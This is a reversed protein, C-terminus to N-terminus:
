ISAQKKLDIKLNEVCFRDDVGGYYTVCLGATHSGMRMSERRDAGSVLGYILGSLFLDGAGTTDVTRGYSVAPQHHIADDIMTMSGKDGMTIVTGKAYKNLIRLADEVTDTNALGMAENENPTFYTAYSIIPIVKEDLGRDPNWGTDVSLTKAHKKCLDVIPAHLCYGLYTHVHDASSIMRELRDMTEVDNSLFHNDVDSFSAFCRDKGTSMVASVDIKGGEEIILTDEIVGARILENRILRGFEDDCMSTYMGVPVGLKALGFATNAGGGAKVAFEKCYEEEGLVPIRDLGGFIIDCCVKAICLVM